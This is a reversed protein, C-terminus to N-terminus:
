GNRFLWQYQTDITSSAMHNIGVYICLFRGYLGLICLFRGYLGLLWKAYIAYIGLITSTNTKLVYKATVQSTSTATPKIKAYIQLINDTYWQLINVTHGINAFHCGLETLYFLYFIYATIEKDWPQYWHSWIHWIYTYVHETYEHWIYPMIYLWLPYIQKQCMAIIDLLHQLQNKPFMISFHQTWLGHQMLGTHNINGINYVYKNIQLFHRPCCITAWSIQLLGGFISEWVFSDIQRFYTILFKSLFSLTKWGFHSTPAWNVSSNNLHTNRMRNSM